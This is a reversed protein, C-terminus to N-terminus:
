NQVNLARYVADITELATLNRIPWGAELRSPDDYFDRAFTLHFGDESLGHDTVQQVALWFNWLPLQYKDAIRV